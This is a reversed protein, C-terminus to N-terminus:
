IHKLTQAHALTVPGAQLALRTNDLLARMPLILLRRAKERAEAPGSGLRAMAAREAQSPVHVDSPNPLRELLQRKEM